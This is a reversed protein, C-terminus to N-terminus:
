SIGREKLYDRMGRLIDVRSVMGLINGKEVVPLRRYFNNLFLGAAFFIDMDPTITVVEKTMFNEVSEEKEPLRHEVGKSMLRLCDKESIIGILKNSSDVVPAGSIRKKILFDMAEYITNTKKLTYVPSMMYEKVLPFQQVM